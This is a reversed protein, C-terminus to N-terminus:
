NRVTKRVIRNTENIAIEPEKEYPSESQQKLAKKEFLLFPHKSVGNKIRKPKAEM